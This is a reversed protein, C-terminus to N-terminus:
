LSGRVEENLLKGWFQNYPHVRTAVDGDRVLPRHENAWAFIGGDLSQVNTYGAARLRSALAASRYGVACYTVITADKPIDAVAAATAGPDVRRASPLHSINWEDATRVDLLVPPRRRSDQLWSALQRTTVWQVQPYQSHLSAQLLFWQFVSMRTVGYGAILVILATVVLGLRTNSKRVRPPLPSTLEM